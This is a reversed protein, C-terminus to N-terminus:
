KCDANPLGFTSLLKLASESASHTNNLSSGVGSVNGM